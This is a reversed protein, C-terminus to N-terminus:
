TIAELPTIKLLSYLVLSSILLITDGVLGEQSSRLIGGITDISDM